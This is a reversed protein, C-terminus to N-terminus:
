NDDCTNGEEADMSPVAGAWSLRMEASKRYTIVTLSQNKPWLRQTKRTGTHSVM